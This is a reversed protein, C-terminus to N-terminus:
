SDYPMSSIPLLASMCVHYARSGIIGALYQLSQSLPRFATGANGLFLDAQKVPFSGSCGKVDYDSQDITDITVGLTGLANLMRATDDSILLNRVRTIDNALAALLLIRNSISKSGPLQVIGQSATAVPLDLWNM